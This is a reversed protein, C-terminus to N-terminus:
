GVTNLFAMKVTSILTQVDPFREPHSKLGCLVTDYTHIVIRISEPNIQSQHWCSTTAELRKIDIENSCLLLRNLSWSDDPGAEIDTLVIVRSNQQPPQACILLSISM